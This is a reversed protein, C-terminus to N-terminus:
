MRNRFFLQGTGAMARIADNSSAAPIEIQQFSLTDVGRGGSARIHLRTLLEIAPADKSASQTKLTDLYLIRRSGSEELRVFLGTERVELRYILM